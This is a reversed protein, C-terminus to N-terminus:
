GRRKLRRLAELAPTFKSYLAVAAEFDSRASATDGIAQYAEGRRHLALTYKPALMIASSFEVIAASPNKMAAYAQGAIYHEVASPAFELAKKSWSLALQYDKIRLAAYALKNYVSVKTTQSLGENNNLFVQCIGLATGPNEENLCPSSDAERVPTPEHGPIVSPGPVPKTSLDTGPSPKPEAPAAAPQDNCRVRVTKGIQPVYRTCDLDESCAHDATFFAALALMGAARCFSTV